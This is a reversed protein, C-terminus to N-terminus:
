APPPAFATLPGWPALGVTLYPNMAQDAHDRAFRWHRRCCDRRVEDLGPERALNRLQHPDSRLDYLEDEDFGNFTYHWHDTRLARQTAYLEVGNCQFHIADRWDAPAGGRLFPLLSRGALGGPVPLGALELLTPSVDALSAFADLTRGVPGLGEPLRWVMPVHYAGTFCPIGKAFLGHDGAYDGHDSLSLVATRRGAPDRDIREVLRGLMEDTWLCAARYHRIAQRVEEPPLQDFVQRRLRRYLGPKDALDDEFSPPLAVGDLPVRDLLRGPAQYPDHPNTLGVFLCWPESGHLLGDLAGLASELTLEDHSRGDEQVAHYLGNRGWGPRLSQGPRRPSADEAKGAQREWDEWRPGHHDSSVASVRHEQWGHDRPRTARDVHWKGAFACHWGAAALDSSWLRTGPVLGDSLRQGNLLNNWVGHQSPYLGSFFTARAPCCHPSPCFARSFRVGREALAATHPLHIGGQPLVTDGRQHDTMVILLNPPM